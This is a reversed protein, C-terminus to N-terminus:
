KQFLFYAMIDRKNFIKRLAIWIRMIWTGSVRYDTDPIKNNFMGSQDVVAIVKEETDQITALWAPVILFAAFLIPGLITMILFSKKRVRTLYERQIILNIKGM